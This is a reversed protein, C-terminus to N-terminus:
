ERNVGKEKAVKRIGKNADQPEGSMQEPQDFEEEDTVYEEVETTQNKNKFAETKTPQNTNNSENSQVLQSTPTVKNFSFALLQEDKILYKNIQGGEEPGEKGTVHRERADEKDAGRGLQPNRTDEEPKAPNRDPITWNKYATAINRSETEKPSFVQIKDDETPLWAHRSEMGSTEKKGVTKLYLDELTAEKKNPSTTGPAMSRVPELKKKEEFQRPTPDTTLNAETEIIQVADPEEMVEHIPIWKRKYISPKFTKMLSDCKRHYKIEAMWERIIYLPVRIHRASLDGTRTMRCQRYWTALYWLVGIRGAASLPKREFPLLAIVLRVLFPPIGNIVLDDICEHIGFPYEAVRYELMELTRELASIGSVIEKRESMRTNM